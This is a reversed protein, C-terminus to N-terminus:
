SKEWLQIIRHVVSWAGPRPFGVKLVYSQFRSFVIAVNRNGLRKERVCYMMGDACDALKLLVKEEDTLNFTMLGEAELAADEMADIAAMGEGLARKTPSPIDGISQEGLDHVLAAMLLEARAEGGTMEWLLMAVGHSHRGVLDEKITDVTHYRRVLSGQLLFDINM